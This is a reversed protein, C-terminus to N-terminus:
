RRQETAKMWARVYAAQSPTLRATQAAAPSTAAPVAYDTPANATQQMPDNEEFTARQEMDARTASSLGRAGLERRQAPVPSPSLRSFGADPRNDPSDGASHSSRATSASTAVSSVVTDVPVRAAPSGASGRDGANSAASRGAEFEIRDAGKVVDAALSSGVARDARGPEAGRLANTLEGAVEEAVNREVQPPQREVVSAAHSAASRSSLAHDPIMFVLTAFAACALSFCLAAFLRASAPTEEVLRLSHPARANAWHELRAVAAERAATQAGRGMEVWTSFASAGDARRDAWLACAADSPRRLGARALLAVWLVATVLLVIETRVPLSAVRLAAALLMTAGTSWLGLRAAGLFEGRWIRRRVAAMLSQVASNPM